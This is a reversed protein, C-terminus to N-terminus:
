HSSETYDQTPFIANNTVYHLNRNPFMKRKPSYDINSLPM